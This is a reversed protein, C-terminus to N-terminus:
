RLWSKEERKLAYMYCDGDNKKYFLVGDALDYAYINDDVLTARDRSESHIVYLNGDNKKFAVWPGALKWSDINDDVRIAKNM